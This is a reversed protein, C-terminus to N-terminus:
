KTEELEETRQIADTEYKTRWTTVETNLKSVLRQLESKGGQEEELQEKVLDLDHKTNALSVMATSRSQPSWRLGDSAGSTETSGLAM